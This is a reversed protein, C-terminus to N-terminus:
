AIHVMPNIMAQLYENTGEIQNVEGALTDEVFHQLLQIQSNNQSATTLM